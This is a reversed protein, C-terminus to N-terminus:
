CVTCEKIKKLSTRLSSSIYSLTMVHLNKNCSIQKNDISIRTFINETSTTDVQESIWLGAGEQKPYTEVRNGNVGLVTLEDDFVLNGKIFRIKSTSTQPTAVLLEHSSKDLQIFAGSKKVSQLGFDGWFRFFYINM